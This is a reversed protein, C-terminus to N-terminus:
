LADKNEEIREEARKKTEENCEKCIRQWKREAEKWQGCMICRFENSYTDWLPTNIIIM